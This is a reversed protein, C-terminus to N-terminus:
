LNNVFIIPERTELLAEGGKVGDEQGDENHGSGPVPNRHRATTALRPAIDPHPAPGRSISWACGASARAAWFGRSRPRSSPVSPTQQSLRHVRRPGPLRAAPGPWGAANAAM